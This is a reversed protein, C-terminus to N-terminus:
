SRGERWKQLQQLARHVPSGTVTSPLPPDFPRVEKNIWDLVVKLYPVVEDRIHLLKADTADRAERALGTLKRMEEVQAAETKLRNYEALAVMVVSRDVHSPAWNAVEFPLPLPLDQGKSRALLKQINLQAVEELSSDLEFAAQSIYWLVDGLELIMRLRRAQTLVNADDREKKKDEESVEGSEGCLGKIPYSLNSGRNPYFARANAAEQYENLTRITGAFPDM